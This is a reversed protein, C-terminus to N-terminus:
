RDDGPRTAGAEEGRDTAAAQRRRRPVSRDLREVDRRRVFYRGGERTAPLRRARIAARLWGPNRQVTAAAEDVTLPDGAQYFDSHHGLDSHYIPGSDVAFSAPGGTGPAAFRGWSHRGDYRARRTPDSLTEYARAIRKFAAEAEADGPHLDPHATRALRRFARQVDARTATTPVGLVAYHDRRHSM